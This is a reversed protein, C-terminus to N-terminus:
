RGFKAFNEACTVRPRPKIRNRRCQLENHVEPKRSSTMVRTANSSHLDAGQCLLYDHIDLSNPLPQTSNSNKEDYAVAAYQARPAFDTIWSQRTVSNSVANAPCTICDTM